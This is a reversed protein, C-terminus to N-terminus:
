HLRDDTGANADTAISLMSVIGAFLLLSLCFFLHKTM